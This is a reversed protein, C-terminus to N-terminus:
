CYSVIYGETCFVFLGWLMEIGDRVLLGFYLSRYLGCVFGV